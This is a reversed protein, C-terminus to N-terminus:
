GKRRPVSKIGGRFGSFFYFFQKLVGTCFRPGNPLVRSIMSLSSKVRQLSKKFCGDLILAKEGSLIWVTKPLPTLIGTGCSKLLPITFVTTCGYWIAYLTTVSRIIIISLIVSGGDKVARMAANIVKAKTINPLESLLLFLIVVDYPADTKFEAADQCHFHMGPYMDGYKELCRDVQHQNIDIVDFCGYAGVRQAIQDLENGFTAGMQLVRQNMKVERVAANVLNQYQFLSRLQVSWKHDRLNSKDMDNYVDGYLLDIYAPLKPALKDTIQETM